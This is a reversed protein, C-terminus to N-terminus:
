FTIFDFFNLDMQKFAIVLNFVELDDSGLRGRFFFLSFYVLLLSQLFYIKKIKM